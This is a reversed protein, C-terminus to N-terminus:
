RTTGTIDSAAAIFVPQLNKLGLLKLENATIFDGAAAELVSILAKTEAIEAQKLLSPPAGVNNKVEYDSVGNYFRDRVSTSGLVDSLTNTHIPGSKKLAKTLADRLATARDRTRKVNDAADKAKFKEVAAAYVVQAKDHEALAQKAVKILQTRNFTVSM